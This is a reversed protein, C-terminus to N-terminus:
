PTPAPGTKPDVPKLEGPKADAKPAAKPPAPAPEKVAEPLTPDCMQVYWGEDAFDKSDPIPMAFQPAKEKKEVRGLTPVAQGTAVCRQFTDRFSRGLLGDVADNCADHKSRSGKACIQVKAEAVFRSWQEGNVKTQLARTENRAEETLIVQVDLKEVTAKLETLLRDRETTAETLKSKLSGVEGELKRAKAVLADKQDTARDAEAQAAALEKEKTALQSSISDVQTQAFVLQERESRTRGECLKDLEADTQAAPQVEAAKVPPAEECKPALTYGLATGTLLAALIFLIAPGRQM